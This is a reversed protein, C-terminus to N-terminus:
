KPDEHKTEIHALGNEIKIVRFWRGPPTPEGLTRLVEGSIKTGYITAVDAEDDIEVNQSILGRVHLSM